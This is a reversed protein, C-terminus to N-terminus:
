DKKKEKILEKNVWVIWAIVGLLFFLFVILNWNLKSLFDNNEDVLGGSDTGTATEGELIKRIEEDSVDEEGEILGGEENEIADQENKNEDEKANDSEKSEEAKESETKEELEIVDGKIESPAQGEEELCLLPPLCKGSNVDEISIEKEQNDSISEAEASQSIEPEKFNFYFINSWSSEKGSLDVAVAYILHDGRELKEENKYYFNATGSEHNIVNFSKVQKHDLFIKIRSNNKSLGTILFNENTIEKKEPLILTPASMPEEIKFSFAKSLGSIRGDPSEAKLSISHEGLALNLFPKYAFNATGSEHRILETKGNYIGDIYIQVFTNSVSLGTIIPKPDGSISNKGISILTPAPLEAVKLDVEVPPSLVLSTKDRAIVMPNQDKKIAESFGYFFSETEKGTNSVNAFDVFKGDLYVLIETNKVTLGKVSSAQIGDINREPETEVITPSPVMSANVSIGIFFSILFFLFVSLKKYKM